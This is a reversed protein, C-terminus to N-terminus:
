RGDLVDRVKQALAHPAFPKQLFAAEAEIVGHRVVADDTYGSMFLVKASPHSGHLHQALESGSMQPMVVDTVLLHIPGRHARAAELARAGNSVEIVTYGHSELVLRTLKRVGQEDEVLLITEHGQAETLQDDAVSQRASTLALLQRTLSTAREAAERIEGLPVRLSDDLGVSTLMMSTYGAIVTLLNNFDHAVGGALQGIAEMKQSLRAREELTLDRMVTGFGGLRGASDRLATTTVHAWFRSGDQRVRWEESEIHDAAAAQELQRQAVANAVDEPSYLRAVPQGLIAAPPYGMLRQAGTNWSTVRGAADFTFIAYKKLSDVLWAVSDVSRTEGNAAAEKGGVDM